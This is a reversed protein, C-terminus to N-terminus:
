WSGGGGGGFGGGSFGGGSFSSGGGSASSRPASTMSTGMNSDLSSLRDILYISNFNDWNHGRYWNPPSTYITKFAEAWKKGVGLVMAYPLIKEFTSIKDNEFFKIRDKEATSIYEEFGKIYIYTDVGKKTKRPMFFSFALVIIGTAIMSLASLVGMFEAILAFFFISIFIIAIGTFMYKNRTKEPNHPFYGKKHLDDYIKERIKPLSAYFKNTLDSLKVTKKKKFMARIIETEYDKLSTDTITHDYSNTLTFTYETKNFFILQKEDSETITLYGRIALDLITASIDRTDVREDIITGIETPSLDKPPKYQPVITTRTEPDRGRTHWLYYLIIFTFFPITVPWNDQIMWITKQLTSPHTVKGKPFRTGITLGEYPLLAGVTTFTIENNSNKTVECFQNQSGYGGTFCIGEIDSQDFGEPLIVKASTQKITIPWETGTVNWYVEDWDQHDLLARQVTYKLTYTFPENVYVDPNGIKFVVDDGKYSQQYPYNPADNGSISDLSLRISFKNGHQNRYAIPINRFIGHQAYRSFDATIKETVEFSSDENVKITVDFDTIDWALYQASATLSFTALLSTTLLLFKKLM